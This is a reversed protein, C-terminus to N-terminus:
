EYLLNNQGTKGSAGKLGQTIGQLIEPNEEVFGLLSEAIGGGGGGKTLQPLLELLEPNEKALDILDPLYDMIGGTSDKIETSASNKTKGLGLQKEM